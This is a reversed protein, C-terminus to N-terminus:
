DCTYSQQWTSLPDSGCPPVNAPCNSGGDPLTSTPTCCECDEDSKAGQTRVSDVCSNVCADYKAGTPKNGDKCTIISKCDLECFGKCAAGSCGLATLCTVAVVAVAWGVRTM